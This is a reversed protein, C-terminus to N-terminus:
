GESDPRAINILVSAGWLIGGGAWCIAGYIYHNMMLEPILEGVIRSAAGFVMFLAAITCGPHFRKLLHRNGSHGLVVRSAIGLTVLGFGCAMEIHSFAIRHPQDLGSALIGVPISILGLILIWDVGRISLRIREVPIEWVLYGVVLAVRVGAGIANRDILDLGYSAAIGFGTLLVVVASRKWRRPSGEHDSSPRRIGTGLFRPLLFGGAGLLCLLVFGHYLLQRSLL